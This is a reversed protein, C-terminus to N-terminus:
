SHASRLASSHGLCHHAEGVVETESRVETARSPGWFPKNGYARVNASAFTGKDTSLQARSEPPKDVSENGPSQGTGASKSLEWPLPQGEDLLKRRAINTCEVRSNEAVNLLDNSSISAQLTGLFSWHFRASPM